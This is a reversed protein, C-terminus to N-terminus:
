LRRGCTPWPQWGRRQWTHGTALAAAYPDTRPFARYPTAGWTRLDYQSLGHYTGGPSVAWPRMGAECRWLRLLSHAPVGYTAQALTAAHQVTPTLTLARVGRRYGARYARRVREHAQEREKALQRRLEHDADTPDGARGGVPTADGVHLQTAGVVVAAAALIPILRTM